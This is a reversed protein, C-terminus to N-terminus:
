TNNCLLRRNQHVRGPVGNRTLYWTVKQIELQSSTNYFQHKPSRLSAILADPFEYRDGHCFPAVFDTCLVTIGSRYFLKNIMLSMNFTYM